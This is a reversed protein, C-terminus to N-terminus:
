TAVPQPLALAPVGDRLLIPLPDLHEGGTQTGVARGAHVVDFEAGCRPCRLVTGRLGAGALTDICYPCRDRYAHLDTGVRCVLTAVGAVMFGGVEGPALATLEPVPQWRAGPGHIRHLLSQPPILAPDAAPGAVAVVEIASIEPAATRVADQVALELTAASSPCSRCSGTFALRVTGEAIGVLRVDGGHSGLYPRVGDLADGVRRLVSHPHLGHVLLLSAVLDDAAFASLTGPDASTMAIIRQLAAGYLDTIEAVLQGARAAAVPGDAACGDLLTQIREGATRWRTDDGSEDRQPAAPSM